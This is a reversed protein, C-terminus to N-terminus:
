LKSHEPEEELSPRRAGIAQWPVVLPHTAFKVKTSSVEGHGQSPGPNAVLPLGKLLVGAFFVFLLAPFSAFRLLFM